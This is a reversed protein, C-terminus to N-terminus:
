RRRQAHDAVHIQGAVARLRAAGRVSARRRWHHNAESEQQSPAAAAHRSHSCHLHLSISSSNPHNEHDTPAPLRGSPHPPALITSPVTKVRSSYRITKIMTEINMRNNKNEAAANANETDACGLPPNPGGSSGKTRISSAFPSPSIEAASSAFASSANRRRSRLRSPRNVPSSIKGRGGPPGPPNPLGPPKPPGPGFRASCFNVSM